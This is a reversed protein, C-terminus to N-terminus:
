GAQRTAPEPADAERVREEAIATLRRLSVAAAEIAALEAPEVEPLAAALRARWDALYAIGAPTLTIYSARGDGADTRRELMGTAVLPAVIKTIAPPTVREYTALDSLRTEGISDITSLMRLQASTLPGELHESVLRQLRMSTTFLEVLPNPWGVRNM